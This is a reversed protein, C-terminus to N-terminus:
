KIDNPISFFEIMKKISYGFINNDISPPYNLFEFIHNIPQDLEILYPNQQIIKNSSEEIEIKNIYGFIMFISLCKPKTSDKEQTATVALVLYDLNNYYSFLLGAIKEIQDFEDFEIYYDNISSIINSFEDINIILICIEISSTYIFALRNNNIKVFDNLSKDIDFNNNIEFPMYFNNVSYDGSDTYSIEFLQVYFFYENYEKYHIFAVLGNNIYLSKIFLKEEPQLANLDSFDIEKNKPEDIEDSYFTLKFENSNDSLSRRSLSLDGQPIIKSNRRRRIKESCTLVVFINSDYYEDDMVFANLIIKNEFGAFTVSSIEKFAEENFSEFSFTKFFIANSMDLDVRNKPIFVIIYSSKKKLEFMEYSFSSPYEGEKLNFFQSFSWIFYNNDNSNIDYLEVMSNYANICFLYQNGNIYVFLNKSVDLAFNKDTINDDIDLNLEKSDHSNDYLFPEGDEKLGYFMRSSSIENDEKYGTLELLFDGNDNKAFHNVQYNPFTLYKNFCSKDSFSNKYYNCGTMQCNFMKSFFLFLFIFIHFNNFPKNLM